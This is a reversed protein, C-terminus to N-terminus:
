NNGLPVKISSRLIKALVDSIRMRRGYDDYLPLGMTGSFSENSSFIKRKTCDVINGNDVRRAKFITM